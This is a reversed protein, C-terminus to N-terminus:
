KKIYYDFTESQIIYTDWSFGAKASAMFFAEDFAILYQSKKGLLRTRSIGIETVRTNKGIFTITLVLRGINAKRLPIQRKIFITNTLEERYIEKLKIDKTVKHVIIKKGSKTTKNISINRSKLGNIVTKTNYKKTTALVKLTQYDAIYTKNNKKYIVIRKKIDNITVTEIKKRKIKSYRNYIATLNREKLFKRFNKSNTM